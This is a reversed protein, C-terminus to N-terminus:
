GNFKKITAINDRLMELQKPSLGRIDDLILKLNSDDFSDDYDAILSDISIHLARAIAAITSFYPKHNGTELRSVYKQTSDILEGLQDQTLGAKIRFKQIRIGIDKYNLDDKM